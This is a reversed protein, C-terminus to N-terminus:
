MNFRIMYYIIEPLYNLVLKLDLYNGTFKKLFDNYRTVIYLIAKYRPKFIKKSQMGHWELIDISTDLPVEIDGLILKSKNLKILVQTIDALSHPVVSRLLDLQIKFEPVLHVTYMIGINQMQGIQKMDIRVPGSGLSDIAWVVGNIVKIGWIHGSNYVFMFNSHTHPPLEIKKGFANPLYQLWVNYKRLIWSLINYRGTLTNYSRSTISLGYREYTYKDFEDCQKYFTDPTIEPKGFFANLAHMRCLDGQQREWYATM